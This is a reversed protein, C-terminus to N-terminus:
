CLFGFKLSNHVPEWPHFRFKPVAREAALSHDKGKCGRNHIDTSSHLPRRVQQVALEEMWGQSYILM